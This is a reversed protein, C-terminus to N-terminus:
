CNRTGTIPLEVDQGNYRFYVAHVKGGRFRDVYLDLGTGCSVKHALCQMGPVGNISQEEAFTCAIRRFLLGEDAVPHSLAEILDRAREDTNRFPELTDYPVTPASGSYPPFLDQRLVEGASQNENDTGGTFKNYIESEM